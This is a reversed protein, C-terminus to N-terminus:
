PNGDGCLNEVHTVVSVFGVLFAFPGTLALLSIHWCWCGCWGAPQEAAIGGARAWRQQWAAHRSNVASHLSAPRQM